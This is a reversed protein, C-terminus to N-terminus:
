DQPEFWLRIGAALALATLAEDETEAEVSRTDSDWVPTWLEIAWDDDTIRGHAGEDFPRFAVWPPRDVCPNMWTCIGHKQMWALRPSLSPQLAPFLDSM